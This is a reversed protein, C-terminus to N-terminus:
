STAPDNNEGWLPTRHYGLCKHGSYLLCKVVNRLMLASLEIGKWIHHDRLFTLFSDNRAFRLLRIDEVENIEHFQKTAVSRAIVWSWVKLLIM